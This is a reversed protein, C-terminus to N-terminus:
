GRHLGLSSSMHDRGSPARGRDDGWGEGLAGAVGLAWARRSAVVTGVRSGTPWRWRGGEKTVQPKKDGDRERQIVKTKELEEVM